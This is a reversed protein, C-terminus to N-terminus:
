LQELTKLLLLLDDWSKRKELPQRLLYAPHYSVVAPIQIGGLDVQHVRGRLKGVTEETGLLTKIAFKGVLFLVKPQSLLVQSELYGYCAEIEERQPDRNGPPRCKLVNGIYVNSKRSLGAAELMRELLQGARGVFPEGQADEDAGPAEGIVMVPSGAVGGSFVTQKRTHALSCKECSSVAIRLEELSKYKSEVQVGQPEALQQIVDPVNAPPSAHVQEVEDPLSALLSAPVQEVDKPENASLNIPASYTSASAAESTKLVGEKLEWVPGLGMLQFLKARTVPETM